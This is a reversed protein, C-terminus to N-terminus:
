KDNHRLSCVFAFIAGVIAIAAGVIGWYPDSDPTIFENLVPQALILSIGLLILVIGQLLGKLVGISAKSEQVNNKKISTGCEGCFDGSVEKGCNPCFM